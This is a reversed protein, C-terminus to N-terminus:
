DTDVDLPKGNKKYVSRTESKLMPAFKNISHTGQVAPGGSYYQSGKTSKKSTKKKQNIVAPAEEEGDGQTAVATDDPEEEYDIEYEGSDDSPQAEPAVPAVAPAPTMAAEEAIATRSFFVSHFLLSLIMWTTLFLNKM